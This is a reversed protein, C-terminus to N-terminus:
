NELNPTPCVSSLCLRRYHDDLLSKCKCHALRILNFILCCISRKTSVAVIGLLM